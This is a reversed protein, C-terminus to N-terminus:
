GAVPGFATFSSNGDATLCVAWDYRFELDITSLDDNEYDLDSMKLSKIFPRQLTWTEVAVGDAGLQEIVVNGLAGVAQGKSQTRLMNPNGPIIYGSNTIVTNLRKLSGPSVPDVLTM